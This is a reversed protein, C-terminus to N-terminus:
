KRKIGCIIEPGLKRWLGSIRINQVGQTVQMKFKLNFQHWGSYHFNWKFYNSSVIILQKIISNYNSIWAAKYLCRFNLHLSHLKIKSVLKKKMIQPRAIFFTHSAFGWFIKWKFFPKNWRQLWIKCDSCEFAKKGFQVM